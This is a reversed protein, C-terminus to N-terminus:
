VVLPNGSFIMKCLTAFTVPVRAVGWFEMSSTKADFPNSKVLAGTGPMAVLISVM